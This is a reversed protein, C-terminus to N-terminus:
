YNIKYLRAGNNQYIIEGLKKINDENLDPYKQKELLSVVVYSVNYKKIIDKTKQLDSTTYFTKVEEVRPGVM